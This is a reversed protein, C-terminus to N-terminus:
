EKEPEYTIKQQLSDRTLKAKAQRIARV